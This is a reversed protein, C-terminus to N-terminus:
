CVGRRRRRDDRDTIPRIVVTSRVITRMAFPHVPDWAVPRPPRKMAHPNVPVVNPPSASDAPSNVPLRVVRM